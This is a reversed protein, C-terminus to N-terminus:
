GPNPPSMRLVAPADDVPPTTGLWNKELATWVVAFTLTAVATNILFVKRLNFRVPASGPTGPVVDAAEDQTHVGFPLVAFLVLWWIMFYLALALAISM